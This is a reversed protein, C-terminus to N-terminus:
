PRPAGVASTMVMDSMKLIKENAKRIEPVTDKWDASLKNAEKVTGSRDSHDTFVTMVRTCIDDQGKWFLILASINNKINENTRNLRSLAELGDVYM